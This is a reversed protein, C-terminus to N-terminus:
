RIFNTYTGKEFTPLAVGAAKGAEICALLWAMNRGLQRLIQMGEEDQRVQDGMAGFAGNWYQSSVVPMNCYTFYKNLEDLASTTGARRAIAIGAAPKLRLAASGAYCVRDFLSKATGSIGAYHVPSGVILGDCTEMKQLIENCADDQYAVCRLVHQKKCQQCAICARVPTKAAWYIETEVGCSEIADACERLAHYTSGQQHPSTNVLLVKM